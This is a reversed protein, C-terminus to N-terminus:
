IISFNLQSQRMKNLYNDINITYNYKHAYNHNSPDLHMVREEWSVANDENYMENQTKTYEGGKSCWSQPTEKKM